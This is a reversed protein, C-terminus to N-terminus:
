DVSATLGTPAVPPSGSGQSGGGDSAYCASPNFTLMSGTGDPTGGMTNLYCAMAPIAIAHAGVVSSTFTGGGCQGSSLVLSWKYTGSTCQGINGTSVDPGVPPFAINSPWWGPTSSQFLSNPLAPQGAATDGKTPISNPYYSDGTPIESAGGCTSSWGTDSSSGCWRVANTVVDYNGWRLLTPLTRTDNPSPPTSVDELGQTNGSWGIDYPVVFENACGHTSSAAPNCQYVTHYGATGLVNGIVNMYRSFAALHIASTNDTPMTGNNSEYGNFYNRFMTILGHSGHVDDADIMNGVNGEFLIMQQGAAHLSIIGFMYALTNNFQNVAFNYAGVCGACPGDFNIPDTIGQLINNELLLDGALGGGIGYSQTGANLTWYFYSDRVLGRSVINFRIHYNNSYDSAVGTFWCKYATVCAFSSTSTGTGTQSDVFLNEVGSNTITQSGWWAQPTNGSSWNPNRIAPSITVTYPGSGTIATATVVEELGRNPRGLNAPGGTQCIPALQCVYLNNNDTPTGTCTPNGSTGSFGTDCQDLVIPTLGLVIGSVNDLTITTTGQTYNGTWNAETYCSGPSCGSYTNSGEMCINAGWGNCNNYQGSYQAFHLFTSNAGSGRLVVNSGPGSGYFDIGGNLYFSGPGLQIVYPKTCGTYGSGTGQIANNILSPSAPSGSSGYAAITPGCQSWSASPPVDGPLGASSWDTARAPSIIGSWAQAKAGLPILGLLFLVVVLQRSYKM